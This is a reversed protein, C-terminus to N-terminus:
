RARSLLEARNGTIRQHAQRTRRSRQLATRAAAHALRRAAPHQNVTYGLRAFAANLLLAREENSRCGCDNIHMAGRAVVCQSLFEGACDVYAQLFEAKTPVSHYNQVGLTTAWGLACHKDECQTFAYKCMDDATFVPVSHLVHLKYNRLMTAHATRARVLTAATM